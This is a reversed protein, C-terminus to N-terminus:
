VRLYGAMERVAEPCGQMHQSPLRMKVAIEQAAQHWFLAEWWVSKPHSFRLPSLASSPGEKESNGYIPSVSVAKPGGKASSGPRRRAPEAEGCGRIKFPGSVESAPPNLTYSLRFCCSPFDWGQSATLRDKDPEWTIASCGHVNLEYREGTVPHTLPLSLGCTLADTQFRLASVPRRAPSLRLSLGSPDSFVAGNKPFFLRFFAWGCDPRCGYERLLAQSDRNQETLGFSPPYWFACSSSVELLRTKGASLEARFDFSLPNDQGIERVTEMPLAPKAMQGGWKRFFGEMQGAPVMFCLEVILERSSSFVAPVLWLRGAWEFCLNAPIKRLTDQNEKDSESQRCRSVDM